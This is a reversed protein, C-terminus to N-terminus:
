NVSLVFIYNGTERELPESCDLCSTELWTLTPCGSVPSIEQQCESSPRLQSEMSIFSNTLEESNLLEDLKEQSMDNHRDSVKKLLATVLDLQHQLNAEIWPIFGKWVLRM